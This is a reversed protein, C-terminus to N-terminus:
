QTPQSHLNVMYAFHTPQSRLSVNNCLHYGLHLDLFPVFIFHGVPRFFPPRQVVNQSCPQFCKPLDKGIVHRHMRVAFPIFHENLWSGVSHALSLPPM